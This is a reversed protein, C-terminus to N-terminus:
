NMSFENPVLAMPVWPWLSGVPGPFGGSSAHAALLWYNHTFVGRPVIEVYDPPQDSFCAKVVARLKADENAKIIQFVSKGKGKMLSSVNRTPEQFNPDQKKAAKKELKAKHAAVLKEEAKKQKEAALARTSVVCFTIKRLFLFYAVM